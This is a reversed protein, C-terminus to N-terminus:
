FEPWGGAAVGILVPWKSRGLQIRFRRRPPPPSQYWLDALQPEADLWECLALAVLEFRWLDMRRPPLLLLDPEVLMVTPYADPGAVPWDYQQIERLLGKPMASKSEFNIAQYSPFLPMMGADGAEMREAAQVYRRYDDVSKFLIVGYSEQHQGIVCGILGHLGLGACTVQFLHGDSPIRRWPRRDYLAAAGEFFGRVDDPTVDETLYTTLSELGRPADKPAVHDRLSAAVQALRPTEGKSVLVGPLLAPVLKQLRSSDVVVRRPEGPHSPPPPHLRAQTIAKELAEQPQDPHGPVMARIAGSADVVLAAVPRYRVGDEGPVTAPLSVLGVEWVTAHSSVGFGRPRPPHSPM